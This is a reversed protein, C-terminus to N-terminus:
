LNLTPTVADAPILDELQKHIDELLLQLLQALDSNQSNTKLTEQIEQLSEQIGTLFFGPTYNSLDFYSCCNDLVALTEQLIEETNSSQLMTQLKLLTSREAQFQQLTILFDPDNIPKELFVLGSDRQWHLCENFSLNFTTLFHTVHMWDEPNNNQMIHYRLFIVKVSEEPHIVCLNKLIAATELLIPFGTKLIELIQFDLTEDWKHPMHIIDCLVLLLDDSIFPSDKTFGFDSFVEAFFAIYDDMTLKYDLPKGLLRVEGVVTVMDWLKAILISRSYGKGKAKDQLIETMRFIATRVPKPILSMRLSHHQMDHVMLTPPKVPIKHVVTHSIMGRLPTELPRRDMKGKELFDGLLQRGAGPFSKVAHASISELFVNWAGVTLYVHTLIASTPDDKNFRPSVLFPKIEDGRRITAVYMESYIYEPSDFGPWDKDSFILDMFDKLVEKVAEHEENALSEGNEPEMVLLAHFDEIATKHKAQEFYAILWPQFKKLVGIFEKFKPINVKQLLVTVVGYLFALAKRKSLDFQFCYQDKKAQTKIKNLFHPISAPHLKYLWQNLLNATTKADRKEDLIHTIVLQGGMEAQTTQLYRATAIDEKDIKKLRFALLLHYSLHRDALNLKSWDGENCQAAILDAVKEDTGETVAQLIPRTPLKCIDRATLTKGARSEPTTALLPQLKESIAKHQWKEPNKKLLGLFFQQAFARKYPNQVFEWYDKDERAQVVSVSKLPGM